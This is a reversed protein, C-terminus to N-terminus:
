KIRLFRWADYPSHVTSIFSGDELWGAGGYVNVKSFKEDSWRVIEPKGRGGSEIDLAAIVQKELDLRFWCWTDVRGAYLFRRDPDDPGFRVSGESYLNTGEFPGPKSRGRDKGSKEPTPLVGHFSGDKMDWYWIYYDKTGYCTGYIRGHKEDLALPHAPIVTGRRLVALVDAPIDTWPAGRM